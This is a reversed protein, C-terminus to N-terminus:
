LDCCWVVCMKCLERFVYCMVCLVYACWRVGLVYCVYVYVYVNVNVKVKVRVRMRLCMCCM